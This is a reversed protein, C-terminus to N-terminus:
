FPKLAKDLITPDLLFPIVGVQAMGEESVRPSSYDGTIVMRGFFDGSHRIIHSADVGHERLYDGFIVSLLYSKGCRRIGTIVKVLGNHMTRKLAELYIPRQIKM